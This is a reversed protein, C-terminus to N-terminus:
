AVLRAAHVAVLYTVTAAVLALGARYGVLARDFGRELGTALATLVVALVLVYVGVVPGLADVPVGQGLESGHMRGALAVTVGGVLPGFVAATNGMTRTLRGLARHTEREVRRLSALHDGAAVLSPGAPRGELAAAALLRATGVARPSPVTRLAGYEGLFADEIGVGLRDMCDVAAEFPERGPEPLSDVVPDLAREVSEGDAVARGVRTLVTPLTREVADVRERVQKEHRFRDVLAVGTGAGVAAVPGAWPAVLVHAAVGSGIAAAGGTCVPSLRHRPVDPHDHPVPAAPFTVPRRAVLWGSAGVLLAPLLLDYGVVLTTATVPLGAVAAAPLAAVLALPLLVGFAYLATVPGQLAAADDAARHRVGDLVTELSRDLAAERDSEAAVPAAQLSAVARDLPVFRERWEQRFGEFGSEPTGRARRVHMGLRRALLRDDDRAAFAAASEATPSVRLRMAALCVLWPATGIARRRRAAALAVPARLLAWGAAVAVTTGVSLALVTPVPPLLALLTGVVFVCGGVAESAAAVTAASADTELCALADSLDDPPEVVLPSRDTFSQLWRRM